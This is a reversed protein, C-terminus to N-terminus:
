RLEDVLGDKLAEESSIWWDKRNWNRKITSRAIPKDANSTKAREAFIDLIRDQQKKVWEVRDEIASTKGSSGFSAEHIMLWSERSMARTDGAQLLIGAMSAAMGICSTTVHHGARRVTQIYDYLAMGDTISGGPSFFVIEIPSPEVAKAQDLRMWTQLTGMCIAASQPDVTGSFPFVHHYENGALQISRKYEERELLMASHKLSYESSQAELEAVLAEANAKRTEAEAKAKFSPILEPPFGKFEESM